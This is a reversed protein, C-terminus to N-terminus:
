AFCTRIDARLLLCAALLECQGSHSKLLATDRLLMDFSNGPLDSVSASFYQPWLGSFEFDTSKM